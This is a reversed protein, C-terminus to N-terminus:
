IHNFIKHSLGIWKWMSIERRTLFFFLLTLPLLSLHPVFLFECVKWCYFSLFFFSVETKKWQQDISQRLVNKLIFQTQCLEHFHLCLIFSFLSSFSYFPLLMRLQRLITKHMCLMMGSEVIPLDIYSPMIVMEFEQSVSRDIAEFSFMWGCSLLM